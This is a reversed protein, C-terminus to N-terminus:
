SKKKIYPNSEFVYLIFCFMAFIKFNVINLVFNYVSRLKTLNTLGLTLQPRNIPM